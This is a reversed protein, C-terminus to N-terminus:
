AIRGNRGFRWKLALALLALVLTLSNAVILPWTALAISQIGIRRKKDM